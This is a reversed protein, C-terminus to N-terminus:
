DNTNNELNINGNSETLTGPPIEPYFKSDTFDEENGSGIPLTGGFQTPEITIGLRRMADLGGKANMMLSQTIPEDFSEALRIALNYIMGNIAGPPVTILDSPNSVETYGLAVGQADFESMMRNLYRIGQSMEAGEVPQEFASVLIEGLADTILSQATEAM